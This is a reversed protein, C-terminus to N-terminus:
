LDRLIKPPVLIVLPSTDCLGMEFHAMLKPIQAAAAFLFGDKEVNV